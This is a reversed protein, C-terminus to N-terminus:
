EKEPYPRDKWYWWRCKEPQPRDTEAFYVACRFVYLQCRDEIFGKQLCDRRYLEEPDLGKLQEVTFIGLAHLDGETAPGVGPIAQLGKKSRGKM